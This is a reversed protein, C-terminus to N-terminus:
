CVQVVCFSTRSVLIKFSVIISFCGASAPADKVLFLEGRSWTTLYWGFSTTELSPALSVSKKLLILCSSCADLNNERRLCVPFTTHRPQDVDAFIVFLVFLTQM